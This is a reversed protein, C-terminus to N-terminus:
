LSPFEDEGAEGWSGEGMGGVEDTETDCLGGPLGGIDLEFQIGGLDGPM